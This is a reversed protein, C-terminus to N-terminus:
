KRKKTALIINALLWGVIASSGVLICQNWFHGSNSNIFFEKAINSMGLVQGLLAGSAIGLGYTTLIHLGSETAKDAELEAHEHTSEIESKVESFIDDIDFWKRMKAYMEIGQQQTSLMPFHYLNVFAAFEGRLDRFRKEWCKEKKDRIRKQTDLSIRQSIRFLSTRAQLLMMGMDLYISEFHFVVSDRPIGMLAVSYNNFGFLTGAKAWRSYTRDRLWNFRFSDIDEPKADVNLLAYWLKLMASDVTSSKLNEDSFDPLFGNEAKPSLKACTWVFARNDPYVDWTQIERGRMSSSILASEKLDNFVPFSGAKEGGMAQIKANKHWEEPMLDYASEGIQLPLSLLSDWMEWYSEIKAIDEHPGPLGPLIDHRKLIEPHRYFPIKYYRFAENLFLLHNLTPLSGIDFGLKMALIGNQAFGISKVERNEALDPYEFLILRAWHLRLPIPNQKETETPICCTLGQSGPLKQAKAGDPDILEFWHAREYLIANTEPMFYQLRWIPSHEERVQNIFAPRSDANIEKIMESTPEASKMWNFPKWSFGDNSTSQYNEKRNDLQYAFPLLFISYTYKPDLSQSM